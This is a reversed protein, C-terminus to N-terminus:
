GMKQLLMRASESTDLLCKRSCRREDKRLGGKEFKRREFELMELRGREPLKGL